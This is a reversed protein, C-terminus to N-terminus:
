WRALLGVARTALGRGRGEPALWYRLMGNGHELDTLAVSGVAAGSAVATVALELREGTLRDRRVARLWEIADHDTRPLSYRFRSVCPDHGAAAVVALDMPEWERLAVATDSLHPVPLPAKQM